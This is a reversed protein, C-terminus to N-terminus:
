LRRSASRARTTGIITFTSGSLTIPVIAAAISSFPSDCSSSRTSSDRRDRASPYKVTASYQL